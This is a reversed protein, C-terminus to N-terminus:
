SWEQRALPAGLVRRVLRSRDKALRAHAKEDPEFGDIEAVKVVDKAELLEELVVVRDRLIWLEETLSEVMRAVDEVTAQHLYSPATRVM